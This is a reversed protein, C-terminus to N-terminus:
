VRDQVVWVIMAGVGLSISIPLFNISVFDLIDASIFGGTTPLDFYYIGTSELFWGVLLLGYVQIPLFKLFKNKALFGFLLQLIGPCLFVLLLYQVVTM